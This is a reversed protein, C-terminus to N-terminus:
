RCMIIEQPIDNLRETGTKTVIFEDEVSFSGLDPIVSQPELSIVTNERLRTDRYNKSELRHLRKRIDDTGNM